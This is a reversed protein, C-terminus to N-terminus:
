KCAKQAEAQTLYCHPQICGNVVARWYGNIYVPNM